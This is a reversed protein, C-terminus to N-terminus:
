IMYKVWFQVPAKSGYLKRGLIKRSAIGTRQATVRGPLQARILLESKM